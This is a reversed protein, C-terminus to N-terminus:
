HQDITWCIYSLFQPRQDNFGLLAGPGSLMCECTSFFQASLKALGKNTNNVCDILVPISGLYILDILIINPRFHHLEQIFIFNNSIALMTKNFLFKTKGIKQCSELIPSNRNVLAISNVNGVKIETLNQSLAM